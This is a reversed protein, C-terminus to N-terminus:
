VPFMRKRDGTKPKIAKEFYKEGENAKRTIWHNNKFLVGQYNIYISQEILAYATKNVFQRSKM